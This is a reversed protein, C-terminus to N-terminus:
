IMPAGPMASSKKGKDKNHEQQQEPSGRWLTFYM